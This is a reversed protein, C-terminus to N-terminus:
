KQFLESKGSIKPAVMHSQKEEEVAGSGVGLSGGM